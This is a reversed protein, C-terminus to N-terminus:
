PRDHADRDWARRKATPKAHKAVSSQPVIFMQTTPAPGAAAGLQALPVSSSVPTAGSASAVNLTVAPAASAPAAAATAPGDEVPAILKLVTSFSSPHDRAIILDSSNVASDHNFDYPSTLPAPNGFSTPHDRVAILDGSNVAADAPNNGSEGIANGFYFVDPTGLGTAADAKLTVQLWANQIQHDAWVLEVRDSGGTGMGKRVTITPAPAAAWGGPANDNGMRFTFDGPVLAGTLGAVDVMIGNIGLSAGSYNAFSAVGGDALPRKTPDIANDSTFGRAPDSWYSHNYFLHHDVAAARVIISVIAINTSDNHGDGTRYRFTDTGVFGATPMYSFSGDPWLTLSGHSVGNVLSASLAIGPQGLNPDVDNALVGAAPPVYLANGPTAAYSDGISTPQGVIHRLNPNAGWRGASNATAYASLIAAFLDTQVNPRTPSAGTVDYVGWGGGPSEVM